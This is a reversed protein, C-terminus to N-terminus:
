SHECREDRRPMLHGRNNPANVSGRFNRGLARKVEDAAAVLVPGGHVDVVEVDSPLSQAARERICQKEILLCGRRLGSEAPVWM